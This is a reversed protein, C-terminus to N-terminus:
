YGFVNIHRCFWDTESIKVKVFFAICKGKKLANKM